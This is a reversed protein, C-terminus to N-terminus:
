GILRTRVTDDLNSGNSPRLRNSLPEGQVHVQARERASKSQQADIGGVAVVRGVLLQDLRCAFLASHQQSPIPAQQSPPGQDFAREYMARPGAVLEPIHQASESRRKTRPTTANGAIASQQRHGLRGNRGFQFRARATTVVLESAASGTITDEPPARMRTRQLSDHFGRADQMRVHVRGTSGTGTLMYDIASRIRRVGVRSSRDM